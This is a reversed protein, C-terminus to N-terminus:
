AGVLGEDGDFAEIAAEPGDLGREGLVELILL